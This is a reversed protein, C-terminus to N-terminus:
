KRWSGWQIDNQDYRSTSIMSIFWFLIDTPFFFLLNGFFGILSGWILFFVGYVEDIYVINGRTFSIIFYWVVMWFIFGIFYKHKQM